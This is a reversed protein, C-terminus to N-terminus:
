DMVKERSTTRKLADDLIRRLLIDPPVGDAEWLKAFMSIATFGPITNIENFFVNGTERDLLFDARAFGRGYMARFSSEAYDRIRRSLEQPIPAPILLRSSACDYKARYSYWDLGPVVEGPMSSSVGASEGLLSVEIEGPHLLGKEMVVISDYSFAEELAEALGSPEEVRSIGVSSGMRAPKVFIPYGLGSVEEASPPREQTFSLWPLVPIGSAQVLTRAAAKNMALASTMVGAGACPWGALACLGQVTGDEGWPGHLAPFVVDFDVVDKGCVLTWPFTATDITVPSGGTSSWTGGRDLLLDTVTHGAAALVKGVYAASILSVDHEASRGGSLLLVKM